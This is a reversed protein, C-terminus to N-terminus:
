LAGGSLFAQLMTLSQPGAMSPVMHGAGRVTAFQLMQGYVTVYGAVQQGVGAGADYYWPAWPTVVPVGLGQVWAESDNVPVCADADGSYILIRLRGLLSPYLDRPLNQATPTYNIHAGCDRWFGTVNRPAVHLATRVAAQNLYGQLVAEDFCERPGPGPNADAAARRGRAHVRADRALADTQVEWATAPRRSYQLV